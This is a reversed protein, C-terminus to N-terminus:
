NVFSKRIFGPETNQCKKEQFTFEADAVNNRSDLQGLRCDGAVQALEPLGPQYVVSAATQPNVIRYSLAALRLTLEAGQKLFLEEVALSRDCVPLMQGTQAFPVAAGLFIQGVIDTLVFITLLIVLSSFLGKGICM